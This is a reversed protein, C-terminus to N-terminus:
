DLWIVSALRGRLRIRGRPKYVSLVLPVLLVLLGGGAHIVLSLRAESLDEPSLTTEAAVRRMYGITQMQLLLVTTAFVALLLKAFVWYHQFLGWATGLSQVIGILLSALALPVIVFWATLEMALYAARVMQGDRSTLGALALSLFGAISGLLGVSAAIHLTLGFKRLRPSMTM